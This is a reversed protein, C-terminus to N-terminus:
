ISIYTTADQNLNLYDFFRLIEMDWFDWTHGYDEVEHYMYDYAKTQKFYDRLIQNLDLWPDLSGCAHYIKPLAQSSSVAKTALHKLDHDTNKIDGDGFVIIRGEAKKSGDNAFPVDAKDGASFAGIAAYLDPRALGVRLCGYGGNSFGSIYNDERQTSLRPFLQRMIVPLEETMYSFFKSGHEMDTFCSHMGGPMIVAIGYQIAYREISTM